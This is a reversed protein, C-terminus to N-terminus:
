PGNRWEDYIRWSEDMSAVADRLVARNTLIALSGNPECPLYKRQDIASNFWDRAADHHQHTSVSAAVWVNIDPFYSMM